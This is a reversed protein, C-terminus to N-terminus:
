FGKDSKCCIESFRETRATHMTLIVWLKMLLMDVVSVEFADFDAAQDTTKLKYNIHVVLGELMPIATLTSSVGNLWAVKTVSRTEQHSFWCLGWGFM